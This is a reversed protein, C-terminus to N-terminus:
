GRLSPNGQDQEQRYNNSWMGVGTIGCPTSPTINRGISQNKNTSGCGAGNWGGVCGVCFFRSRSNRSLVGSRSHRSVRSFRLFFGARGHPAIILYPRTQLFAVPQTGPLVMEPSPEGDM